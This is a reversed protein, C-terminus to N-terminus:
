IGTACPKTLVASDTGDPLTGLVRQAGVEHIATGFAPHESGVFGKLKDITVLKHYYACTAWNKLESFSIHPM